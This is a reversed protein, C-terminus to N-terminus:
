RDREAPDPRDRGSPPPRRPSSSGRGSVMRWCEKPVSCRWRPSSAEKLESRRFAGEGGFGGSGVHGREARDAARCMTLRAAEEGSSCPCRVTERWSPRMDDASWETVRPVAGVGGAGTGALAGREYSLPLIAVSWGEEVEGIRDRDDVVAGDLFVENFHVDGNMQRLPRVEVGPQHMPLAFATVGRHGPDSPDTRTLLFGLRRLACPQGLGQQRDGALRRRRAGSPFCPGGPGGAEPESFLQCWIEQGIRIPGLWRHHQEESGLDILTPGVLSLGVPYPLLLDRQESAPWSRRAVVAARRPGAGHRRPRRAM